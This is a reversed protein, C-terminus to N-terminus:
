KVGMIDGNEITVADGHNFSRLLARIVRSATILDRRQEPTGHALKSIGRSLLRDALSQIETIRITTLDHAM